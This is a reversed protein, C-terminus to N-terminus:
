TIAADASGGGLGAGMPVNKVLHIKAGRPEKLEKKLLQAARMVLNRGDTPLSPNSCTLTLPVGPAFTLEDGLSITQFVTSLTYYGNPRKGTIELYFNVKAPAKLRIM